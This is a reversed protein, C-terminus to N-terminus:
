DDGRVPRPSPETQAGRKGSRLWELETITAESSLIVHLRKCLGFLEDPTVGPRRFWGLFRARPRVDIIWVDDSGHENACFIWAHGGGVRLEVLWAWDEYDVRPQTGASEGLRAALWRALEEGYVGPNVQESEHRRPRFRTSGFRASTTM